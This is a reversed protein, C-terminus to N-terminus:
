QRDQCLGQNVFIGMSLFRSISAMHAHLGLHQLKMDTVLEVGLIIEPWGSVCKVVTVHLLLTMDFGCTYVHISPCM